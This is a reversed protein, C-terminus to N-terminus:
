RKQQKAELEARAQALSSKIVQNSPMLQLAAEWIEIARETQGCTAYS